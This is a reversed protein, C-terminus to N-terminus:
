SDGIFPDLGEGIYIFPYPRNLVGSCMEISGTVKKIM